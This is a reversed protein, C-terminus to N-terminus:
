HILVCASESRRTDDWESCKERDCSRLGNCWLLPRPPAICAAPRSQPVTPTDLLSYSYLRIFPSSYFAITLHKTLTKPRPSTFRPRSVPETSDNINTALTLHM